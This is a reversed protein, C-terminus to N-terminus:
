NLEKDFLKKVVWGQSEVAKIIYELTASLLLRDTNYEYVAAYMTFPKLHPHNKENQKFDRLEIFM